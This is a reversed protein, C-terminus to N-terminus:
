RKKIRYDWYNNTEMRGKERVVAKGGIMELSEQQISLNIGVKKKNRKNREMKQGAKSAVLETIHSIFLVNNYLCVFFYDLFRRM